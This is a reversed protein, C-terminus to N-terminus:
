FIGYRLQSKGKGHGVGVLGALMLTLAEIM